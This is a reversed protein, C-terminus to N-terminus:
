ARKGSRLRRPTTSVQNDKQNTERKGGKTKGRKEIKTRKAPREDDVLQDGERKLVEPVKVSIPDTPPFHSPRERRFMHPRFAKDFITHERRFRLMLTEIPVNRTSSFAVPTFMADLGDQGDSRYPVVSKDALDSILDGNLNLPEGLENQVALLQFLASGVGLVRQNLEDDSLAALEGHQMLTALPDSLVAELEPNPILNHAELWHSAKRHRVLGSPGDVSYSNFSQVASHEVFASIFGNRQALSFNLVASYLREDFAYGLGRTCLKAIVYVLQDFHSRHHREDLKGIWTFLVPAWRMVVQSFVLSTLLIGQKFFDHCGDTVLGHRGSEAELNEEHWSRIQDQLLVDRMFPTQMVIFRGDMLDSKVIWPTEFSDQLTSLSDLLQFGSNRTAAPAVIGQRVKSNEVETRAKRAGLLIPNIDGLATQTPGGGARLQQATLSPNERVQRDLAARDAAPLVKIPSPQARPTGPTSACLAFGLDPELNAFIPFSGFSVYTLTSHCIHCTESLQKERPTKEKKPRFFRSPTGADSSCKCHFVGLCVRKDVKFAGEPLGRRRAGSSRWMWGQDDWGEPEQGTTCELKVNGDPWQYSPSEEKVTQSQVPAPIAAPFGYGSNLTQAMTQPGAIPPPYMQPPPYPPPHYMGPPPHPPVWNGTYAPYPPYAGHDLVAHPMGPYTPYMWPAQGYHGPLYPLGTPQGYVNNPPYQYPTQGIPQSAKSLGFFRKIREFM